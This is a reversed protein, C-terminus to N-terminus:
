VLRALLSEVSEIKISSNISEAGDRLNRLCFPCATVLISAGTDEAERVRNAAVAVAEDGRGSRFGGGAGCCKAFKRNWEMEVLTAGPISSLIQRPAEYIGSHRSLHCPDHYTIVADLHNIRLKGGQVLENLFEMTHTFNFKPDSSLLTEYDHSLM